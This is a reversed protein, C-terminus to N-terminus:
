RGGEQSTRIRAVDSVILRWDALLFNSPKQPPVRGLLLDAKGGCLIAIHKLASGGAAVFRDPPIKVVHFSTSQNSM